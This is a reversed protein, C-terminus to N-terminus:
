LDSWVDRRESEVVSASQHGICVRFALDLEFLDGLLQVHPVEVSVGFCDVSQMEDRLRGEQDRSTVVHVDEENVKRGTLEDVREFFDVVIEDSRDLREVAVLVEHQGAAEVLGDLDEIHSFGVLELQGEFM